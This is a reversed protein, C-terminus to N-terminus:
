RFQVVTKDTVSDCDEESIDDFDSKHGEPIREDNLNLGTDCSTEDNPYQWAKM